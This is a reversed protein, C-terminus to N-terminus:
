LQDPWLFTGMAFERKEDLTTGKFSDLGYERLLMDVKWEEMREYDSKKYRPYHHPMQFGGCKTTVKNFKMIEEDDDHMSYSSIEHVKDNKSSSSSDKRYGCNMTGISNVLWKMLMFTEM